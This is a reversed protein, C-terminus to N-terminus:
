SNKDFDRSSIEKNIYELKEYFDIGWKRIIPERLFKFVPVDLKNGCDCAPKCIDWENYNIAEHHKLQSVRIPYLHCSLPKKFNTAEEKHAKEISCKAVGGEDFIVFACEKGDVLTTVPENEWDMYFVGQNDISEIGEKRMFPKISEYEKELIHVEEETLPAGSNGEVCCAGKCASLDCVFKKKFLDQAILKDELEIM